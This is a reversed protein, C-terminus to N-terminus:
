QAFVQSRFKYTIFKDYVKDLISINETKLHLSVKKSYITGDQLCVILRYWKYDYVSIFVPLIAFFSAIILLDSPFFEITSLLLLIPFSILAIKIFPNLKNKQIYIRNVEAFSIQCVQKNKYELVLGEESYNMDDFQQKSNFKKTEANYSTPKM